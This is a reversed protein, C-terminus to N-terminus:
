TKSEGIMDAGGQDLLRDALAVGLQEPHDVGGVLTDRVSISGDTAAVVAELTLRQGDVIRGWAGVPATCGAELQRLLAREAAVATKTSWHDLGFLAEALEPHWQRLDSAHREDAEIALAGQGPAPLMLEDSLISSIATARGLRNLGAAALVVADLDGDTVRALRTDVNGRIERMVLDPRIRRIQAIRRPSGTGVRSNPPLNVLTVGPKACLADRHDERTPVCVVALGPAPATPLDKFSHVALDAEGSIVAERVRAVFVGIGGISSLARQDIDGQTTVTVLECPLGSAATIADAVWQSQTRALASARTAIRIPRTPKRRISSAEQTM